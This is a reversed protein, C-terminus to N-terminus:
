GHAVTEHKAFGEGAETYVPLGDPMLTAGPGVQESLVNRINEGTVRKM